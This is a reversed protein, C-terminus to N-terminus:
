IRLDLVGDVLEFGYLPVDDNDAVAPVLVGLRLDPVHLTPVVNIVGGCDLLIQFLLQLLPTDHGDAVRQPAVHEELLQVYLLSADDVVCSDYV